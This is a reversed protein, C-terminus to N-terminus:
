RNEWSGRGHRTRSRVGKQRESRIFVISCHDSRKAKPRQLQLLCSIRPIIERRVISRPDQVGLQHRFSCLSRALLHDLVIRILFALKRLEEHVVEALSSALVQLGRFVLALGDHAVSTMSLLGSMSPLCVSGLIALRHNGIALWLKHSGIPKAALATTLHARGSYSRQAM